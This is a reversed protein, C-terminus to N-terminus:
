LGGTMEKHSRGNHVGYPNQLETLELALENGSSEKSVAVIWYPGTANVFGRIDTSANLKKDHMEQVDAAVLLVQVDPHATKGFHQMQVM